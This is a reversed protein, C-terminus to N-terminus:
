NTPNVLPVPDTGTDGGQDGPGGPPDNPNTPPDGPGRPDDPSFPGGDPGKDKPPKPACGTTCGGFRSMDPATFSSPEIGALAKLMTAKWIQGSITAGFVEGYYRGGITVGRLPHTYSGRPDGLSVASALDPTYGAFWATMSGDTTGTKGAADRGLGGVGTMTGKTFVGSLIDNVADAIEEELAQKCTPKFTTAKGYRDTIQTIAM